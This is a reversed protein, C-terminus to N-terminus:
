KRKWLMVEAQGAIQLTGAAKSGCIILQYSSDAVSGCWKGLHTM